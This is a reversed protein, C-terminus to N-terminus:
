LRGEVTVRHKADMSGVITLVTALREVREGLANVLEALTVQARSMQELAAEAAQLRAEVGWAQSGRQVQERAWRAERVARLPPNKLRARGEESLTYPRSVGAEAAIQYERAPKIGYKAALAAVPTKALYESLLAVRQERSVKTM